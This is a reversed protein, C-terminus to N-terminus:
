KSSNSSSAHSKQIGIEKESKEFDEAIQYEYASKAEKIDNTKRNIGTLIKFFKKYFIHSNHGHSLLPM